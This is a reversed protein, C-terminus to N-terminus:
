KVIPTLPKVPTQESPVIQWYHGNAHEIALLNDRQDPSKGEIIWQYIDAITHAGQSFYEHGLLEAEADSADITDVGPAVIINDGAEGARPYGHLTSSASLALDRSSVYLTMPLKYPTLKPLFDRAFIESDMDPAAFIVAGIRAAYQPHQSLLHILSRTLARNGLSHALLYVREIDTQAFLQALFRDIDPQSWQLNVEDVTYKTASEESPWSFMVVPGSLNLDYAMKASIRTAREFTVNYGHIFVLADHPSFRRAENSIREYFATETLPASNVLALHKEPNRKLPLNWHIFSASHAKPYNAPIAVTNVGFSVDARDQGYRKNLNTKDTENRNTAFYVHRPAFAQSDDLGIPQVNQVCGILFLGSLAAIFPRFLTM